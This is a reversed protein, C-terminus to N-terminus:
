TWLRVARPGAEDSRSAPATSPIGRGRCGQPSGRRVAHARAERPRPGLRRCAPQPTAPELPIARSPIAHKEDAPDHSSLIHNPPRPSQVSPAGHYMCVHSGSSCLSRPHKVIRNRAGPGQSNVSGDWTIGARSSSPITGVILEHAEHGSWTKPHDPARRSPPVLSSQYSM